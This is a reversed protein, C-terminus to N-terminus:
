EESIIGRINWNVREGGPLARFNVWTGSAKVYDGNPSYNSGDDCGVSQFAVGPNAGAVEIGIWIGQNGLVIDEDLLHNIFSRGVNVRQSIDRSYLLEGPAAADQGEAYVKIITREPAEWAYFEIQELRRGAFEGTRNAPFYAAFEEFDSTPATFPGTDYRLEDQAFDDEDDDCGTYVLVSLALLLLFPLRLYRM